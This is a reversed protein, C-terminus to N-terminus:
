LFSGILNERCFNPSTRSIKLINPASSLNNARSFSSDLLASVFTDSTLFGSAFFPSTNRLTSPIEPGKSMEALRLLESSSGSGTVLFLSISILLISTSSFSSATGSNFFSSSSTGSNFFNSSATGSNLFNTSATGSNFFSSGLIISALTSFGSSVIRWSGLLGTSGTGCVGVGVTSCSGSGVIELSALGGSGLGVSTTSWGLWFGLSVFGWIIRGWRVTVVMLCSGFSAESLGLRIGTILCSGTSNVSPIWCGGDDSVWSTSLLEM